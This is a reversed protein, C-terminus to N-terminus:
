DEDAEDRLIKTMLLRDKHDKSLIPPTLILSSKTVKQKEPISNKNGKILKMKLDDGQM